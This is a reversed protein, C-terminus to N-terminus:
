LLLLPNLGRFDCRMRIYISQFGAFVNRIEEARGLDAVADAIARYKLSLL